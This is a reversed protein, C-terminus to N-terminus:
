LRPFLFLAFVFKFLKGSRQRQERWNKKLRAIESPEVIGKLQLSNEIAQESFEALDNETIGLINLLAALDRTSSAM